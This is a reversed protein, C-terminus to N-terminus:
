PGSLGCPQAMPERIGQEQVQEFRGKMAAQVGAGLAKPLQQSARGPDVGYHDVLDLPDRLQQGHNVRQSSGEGGRKM